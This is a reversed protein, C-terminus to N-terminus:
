AANGKLLSIIIDNVASPIIVQDSFPDIMIGDIGDISSVYNLLTGVEMMGSVAEEAEDKLEDEEYSTYVPIFSDGDEDTITAVVMETELSGIEGRAIKELDSEPVESGDAAMMSTYIKTGKVACLGLLQCIYGYANDATQDDECESMTEMMEKLKALERLEGNEDATNFYEECNFDNLDIM